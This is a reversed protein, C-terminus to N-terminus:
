LADRGNNMRDAHLRPDTKATVPHARRVNRAPRM